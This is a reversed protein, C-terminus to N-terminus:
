RNALFKIFQYITLALESVMAFMILGCVVQGLTCCKDIFAEHPTMNEKVIKNMQRIEKKSRGAYINENIIKDMM